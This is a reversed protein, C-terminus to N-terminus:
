RLNLGTWQAYTQWKTNPLLKALLLENLTNQQYLLDSWADWWSELADRNAKIEILEQLLIFREHISQSVPTRLHLGERKERDLKSFIFQEMLAVPLSSTAKSQSNYLTFTPMQLEERSLIFFNVILCVGFELWTEKAHVLPSFTELLTSPWSLYPVQTPQFSKWVPLILQMMFLCEEKLFIM